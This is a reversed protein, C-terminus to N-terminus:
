KSGKESLQLYKEKFYVVTRYTPYNRLAVHFRFFFVLPSKFSQQM